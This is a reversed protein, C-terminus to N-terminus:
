VSPKFGSFIINDCYPLVRIYEEQSTVDYAIIGMVKAKKVYKNPLNKSSYAIFDPKAIKILKLKKLKKTKISGYYKLKKFFCSKLIRVYESNKSFWELVYPSISMIAVKDQCNFKNVYDNIISLLNEELIGVKNENLVYLIIPTKGQINELVDYLLPIKEESNLLTLNSIEKYNLNTLYGNKKTLRGLSKDKFCIAKGDATFQICILNTFGQASSKLFAGMSNEPYEDDFLGFKAINNELVWSDKIELDFESLSNNNKITLNEKVKKRM